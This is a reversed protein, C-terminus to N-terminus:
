KAPMGMMLTRVPGSSIPTSTSPPDRHLRSVSQTSAQRGTGRPLSLRNSTGIEIGGTHYRGLAIAVLPEIGRTAVEGLNLGPTAGYTVDATVGPSPTATRLERPRAQKSEKRKTLSFDHMQRNQTFVPNFYSWLLGINAILSSITMKRKSHRASTCVEASSLRGYHLCNKVVSPSNVEFNAHSPPTSRINSYKPIRSTAPGVM